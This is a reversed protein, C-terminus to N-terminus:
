SNFVNNNEFPVHYCLNNYENKGDEIVESCVNKDQLLIDGGWEVVYPPNENSPYWECGAAINTSLSFDEFFIDPKSYNKKSM